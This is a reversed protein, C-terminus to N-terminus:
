QLPRLGIYLGRGILGDPDHIVELGSDRFAALYDEHTFLGLEHRETFHQIGAPTAVLYHFDNRSINGTRESVSMRSIKLEPQDVFTAHVTGAQWQDPTFWPEVLIVGGPKIHRRMTQITQRLRSVTKVYGIASFLCTIVDVQYGLDFDVMDAEYFEVSPCRRHAIALLEHNLDLGKVIYMPQLYVLHAGTGCAIDLLTNGTSRRHKWILSNIIEAERQYNKFGYIADYFAASKTYM